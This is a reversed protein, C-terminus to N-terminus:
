KDDGDEHHHGDCEEYIGAKEKEQLEQYAKEGQCGEGGVFDRIIPLKYREMLDVAEIATYGSGLFRSVCNGSIIGFAEMEIEGCIIAECDWKVTQEAFFVDRKDDQSQITNVIVMKDVDVILLYRAQILEDPIMHDEINSVAVSVKMNKGGIHKIKTTKQYHRQNYFRRWLKVKNTMDLNDKLYREIDTLLAGEVLLAEVL